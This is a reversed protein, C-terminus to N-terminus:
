YKTNKRADSVVDTLTVPTVFCNAVADFLTLAEDRDDGIVELASEGEGCVELMYYSKGERTFSHLLYRMRMGYREEARSGILFIKDEFAVHNTM